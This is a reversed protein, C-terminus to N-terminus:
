TRPGKSSRTPDQDGARGQGRSTGWIKVYTRSEIQVPYEGHLQSRSTGRIRWTRPKKNHKMNEKDQSRRTDWIRWTGQSRNHRTNVMDKAEIQLEYKWHGESRIHMNWTGSNRSIEQRRGGEQHRRIEERGGCGKSEHGKHGQHRCIHGMWGYRCTYSIRLWVQGCTM